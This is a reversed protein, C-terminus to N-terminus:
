RRGFRYNIGATLGKNNQSESGFNTYYYNPTIRLALGPGLNYDIPVGVTATLRWQNPYLGVLTGPVSQSNAYFLNHAIGVLAVGSVSWKQRMYFRYSPGASISYNSVSPEYINYINQLNGVYAVGYYGRGDVTAGLKNTFYRTVGADFGNESFNQLDHGPRMRLFTYGGFVEYKHGYTDQVIADIRQQRRTRVRAQAQRALELRQAESPAPPPNQSSSSAAPQQDAAPADPATAAPATSDPTPAPATPSSSQARAAASIM